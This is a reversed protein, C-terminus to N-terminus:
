DRFFPFRWIEILRWAIAAVLLWQAAHWARFFWVSAQRRRARRVLSEGAWVLCLVLPAYLSLMFRDGRGIPTYWGYALSYGATVCLVFLINTTTEPHVRQAANVPRPVAFRLATGFGVLVLALWGIYVGRLELVGKWPKPNKKSKPTVGPWLLEGIKTKTGDVLRQIMQENTHTKKYNDFSPRDEKPMAELKAKSNHEGMWKYCDKFDDLWMWYSPFSHLPNGFTEWAYTLRPGATMLYCFGMVLMALWHNRRLWLTNSTKNALKQLEPADPVDGEAHAARSATAYRFFWPALSRKTEIWGWMWRVTSIVV